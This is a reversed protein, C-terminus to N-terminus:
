LKGLAHPFSRSMIQIGLADLGGKFGLEVIGIHQPLLNGFPTHCKCRCTLEAQEHDARGTRTLGHECPTHGANQGLKGELVLLFRQADMRHQSLVDISQQRSVSRETARVVADRSRAKNAAPARHMRALDAQSM